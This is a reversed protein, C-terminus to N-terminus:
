QTIEKRRFSSVSWRELTWTGSGYMMTATIVSDFLRLRHRLLISRSTLEQRYRAFPAWGIRIRSKIETTEQQEFTITQGLYRARGSTPLINEVRIEDITAKTQRNSRQNSLIVTARQDTTFKKLQCMYAENVDFTSLSELIAEHHITGFAKAFDVTRDM